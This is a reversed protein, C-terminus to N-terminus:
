VNMLTVAVVINHIFINKIHIFVRKNININLLYQLRQYEMLESFSSTLVM